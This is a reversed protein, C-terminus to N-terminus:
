VSRRARKQRTPTSMGSCLCTLDHYFRYHDWSVNVDRDQWTAEVLREDGELAKDKERREKAKAVREKWDRIEPM